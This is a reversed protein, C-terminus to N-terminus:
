EYGEALLRADVAALAADIEEESVEVPNALAEAISAKLAMYDEHRQALLRMAETVVDEPSSYNGSEVAEAIVHKFRDGISVNM